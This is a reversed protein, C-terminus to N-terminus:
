REEEGQETDFLGRERFRERFRRVKDAYALVDSNGAERRERLWTQYGGADKVWRSLRTPGTNYAVLAREVDNGNRDLLWAFYDAGLRANLLADSLLDQEDPEPLGLVRARERATPLRLQFLGCAGASSRVSVRGSSEAFMIGALLYPDVSSERSAELLVDRHSEVRRLAPFERAAQIVDRWRDTALFCIGAGVGLLLLLRLSGQIWARRRTM